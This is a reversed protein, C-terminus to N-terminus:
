NGICLVFANSREEMAETLLKFGEATMDASLRNARLVLDAREGEAEWLGGGAAKCFWDADAERVAGTGEGALIATGANRWGIAFPCFAVSLSPPWSELM